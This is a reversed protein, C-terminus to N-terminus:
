KIRMKGAKLKLPTFHLSLFFVPLHHRDSRKKRHNKLGISINRKLAFFARSFDTVDGHLCCSLWQILLALTLELMSITVM